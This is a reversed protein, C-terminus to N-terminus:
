KLRGLTGVEDHEMLRTYNVADACLIVVLRRKARKQM